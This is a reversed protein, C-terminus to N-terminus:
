FLGVAIRILGAWMLLSVLLAVLWYLGVPVGKKAVPLRRSRIIEGRASM